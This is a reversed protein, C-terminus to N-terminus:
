INQLITDVFLSYSFKEKLKEGEPNPTHAKRSVIEMASIADDDEFDFWQGQNWREGPRFFMGDSADKMKTAKILVSNESNCYDKHVHADLVVAHKGLCLSQFLPLNFGELGSLGNLDIQGCNLFDCYEANTRLYPIFNVNWIKNGGFVQHIFLNKQEEFNLIRGDGHRFFPNYCAINLQHQRNNGFKKVWLQAIRDTNKRLERKGGLNWCTIDKGLYDKNTKKFNWSDFGLPAYVVNKVGADEFVYKTYNSSVFCVKQNNIINLEDDTVKNTEHFTLLLQQESFSELSSNLHWLKFVPNKRNHLKTSKNVCGQLWLNFDQDDKQASLDIGGGIVFVCPSLGRKYIERCIAISTQGFSLSNFPINLSINM